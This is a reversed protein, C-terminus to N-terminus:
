KVNWIKMQGAIASSSLVVCGKPKLFITQKNKQRLASGGERGFSVFSFLCNYLCFGSFLTSYGWAHGLGRGAGYADSRANSHLRWLRGDEASAGVDTTAGLAGSESGYRRSGVRSTMLMFIYISNILIFLCVYIYIYINVDNYIYIYIYINM